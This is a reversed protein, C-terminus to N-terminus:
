GTGARRLDQEPTTYTVDNLPFMGPPVWRQLLHTLAADPLGTCLALASPFPAAVM